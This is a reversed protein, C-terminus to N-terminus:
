DKLNLITREAWLAAVRPVGLDNFVRFLFEADVVVVPRGDVQDVAVVGFPHIIGTAHDWVLGHAAQRAKRYANLLNPTGYGGVARFLAGAVQVDSGTTTRAHKKPLFQQALKAALKKVMLVKPGKPTGSPKAKPKATVPKPTDTKLTAVKRVRVPAVPKPTDMKPDPKRVPKPTLKKTGIRTTKM